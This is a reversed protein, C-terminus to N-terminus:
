RLRFIDPLLERLQFRKAKGESKVIVVAKEGFEAIVQRCAGCPVIEGGDARAVAIKVIENEGSSVANFIAVREACISLGYSANEVNAGFYVRGSRGVVASGVRYNSYPAYAKSAANEALRILEEDSPETM